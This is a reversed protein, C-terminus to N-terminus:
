RQGNEIYHFHGQTRTGQRRAKERRGLLADLEIFFIFFSYVRARPRDLVRLQSSRQLSPCAFAPTGMFVLRLKSM